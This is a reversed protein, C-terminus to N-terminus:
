AFHWTSTKFQSIANVYLKKKQETQSHETDTNRGFAQWWSWDHHVISGAVGKFTGPLQM